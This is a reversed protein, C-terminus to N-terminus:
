LDLPSIPLHTTGKTLYYKTRRPVADRRMRTVRSLTQVASLRLKMRNPTGFSPLTPRPTQAQIRCRVWISRQLFLLLHLSIGTDPGMLLWVEDRPGDYSMLFPTHIRSYINSRVTKSFTRTIRQRAEVCIRPIQVGPDVSESGISILVDM